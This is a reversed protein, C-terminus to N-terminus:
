SSPFFITKSQHFILKALTNTSLKTRRFFHGFSKIGFISIENRISGIITRVVINKILRLRIDGSVIKLLLGSSNLNSKICNSKRM